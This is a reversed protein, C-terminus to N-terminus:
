MRPRPALVQGLSTATIRPEFERWVAEVTLESMFEWLGSPVGGGSPRHGSDGRPARTLAGPSGRQHFAKGPEDSTVSGWEFWVTWERFTRAQDESSPPEM